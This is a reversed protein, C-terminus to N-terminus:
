VMGMGLGFYPPPPPLQPEASPVPGQPPQQQSVILPGGPAQQHYGEDAPGDVVVLPATLEQKARQQVRPQEAQQIAVRVAPGQALLNQALQANFLAGDVAIALPGNGLGGGGGAGQKQDGPEIAVGRVQVYPAGDLEAAGKQDPHEVPRRRQCCGYSKAVTGVVLLLVFAGGGIIAAWSKADMGGSSSSPEAICRFGDRTANILWNGLCVMAKKTTDYILDRDDIAVSTQIPAKSQAMNNCAVSAIVRSASEVVPYPTPDIGCKILASTPLCLDRSPSFFRLRNPGGSQVRGSSSTGDGCIVEAAVQPIAAIAAAKVVESRLLGSATKVGERGAALALTLADGAVGVAKSAFKSAFGSIESVLGPGEAAKKRAAIAEQVLQKEKQIALSRAKKKNTPM